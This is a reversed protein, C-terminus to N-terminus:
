PLGPHGEYNMPYESGGGNHVEIFGMKQHQLGDHKWGGPVQYDNLKIGKTQEAMIAAIILLVKFNM